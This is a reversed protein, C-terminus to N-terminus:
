KKKASTKTLNIIDTLTRRVKGLTIKVSKISDQNTELSYEKATIVSDYARNGYYFMVKRGIEFDNIKYANSTLDVDFKIIHNYKSNSLYEVLITNINDDSMVTENKYDNYGVFQTLDSESTINTIVGDVTMGYVGKLTTGTSNYIEMVTNEQNEIQIEVNKILEVNNSITLYSNRNPYYYDLRITMLGLYGYRTMPQRVYSARVGYGTANFLGILYDELNSISTENILPMTCIINKDKDYSLVSDYHIYFGRIDLNQSRRGGLYNQIEGSIIASSHYYFYGATYLNIASPLSYNTLNKGNWSNNKTFIFNDDFISLAERCYLTNGDISEIFGCWIFEGKNTYIAVPMNVQYTSPVDYCDIRTTTKTLGDEIVNFSDILTYYDYQQNRYETIPAGYQVGMLMYRNNQVNDTIKEFNATLEAYMGYWYTSTAVGSVNTLVRDTSFINGNIDTWNKFVYGDDAIAEITIDVKEMDFMFNYTSPANRCYVKDFTGYPLRILAQGNGSSSVSVYDAYDFPSPNVDGSYVIQNSIVDYLGVSGLNTSRVPYLESVKEGNKTIAMYFLSMSPNSGYAVNGGNNMAMAYISRTGEFTGSTASANIIEENGGNLYAENKTNSFYHILVNNDYVKFSARASRYGYYSTSAMLLNLQGASTNSNTNRAGFIYTNKTIDTSFLVDVNTDDNPIIGTDFFINQNTKDICIVPDCYDPIRNM